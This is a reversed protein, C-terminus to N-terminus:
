YYWKFMEEMSPEEILVDKPALVLLARLLKQMEGTYSFSVSDKERKIGTIEPLAPAEEVGALKINRLSSRLLNEVTDVRVLSGERIIAARRCYQRVETLVHSSLFCATGEEGAKTLLEWFVEQMLPDLGSTPEDLILLAPKHQMACVISVKKRNGLSLESIRKKRDVGLLGCLREAEEGCSLGRIDAALKIVQGATMSPYFMVESPMYGTKQLIAKQEKGACHGLVKIEGAEYRLMGLLCRITTSKGAGNPGLFGFIEGKEVVFSINQVGRNRGYRKTLGCIEIAKEMKEEMGFRQQASSALSIDTKARGDCFKHRKPVFEQNFLNSDLLKNM